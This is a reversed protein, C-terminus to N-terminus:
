NFSKTSAKGNNNNAIPFLSLNGLTEIAKTKGTGSEGIVLIKPHEIGNRKYLSIVFGLDQPIYQELIDLRDKAYRQSDPKTQYLYQVQNNSNKIKTFFICDFYEALWEKTAGKLLPYFLFQGLDNKDYTIHSNVIVWVPTQILSTIFQNYMRDLKSWDFLELRESKNKSELIRMDIRFLHSITDIVIGELRYSEAISSSKFVTQKICEKLLPHEYDVQEKMFLKSLVGTVESLGNTIQIPMISSLSEASKPGGISSLSRDIDFILFSM